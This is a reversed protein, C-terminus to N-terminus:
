KGAVSIKKSKTLNGFGTDTATITASLNVSGISIARYICTATFPVLGVAAKTKINLCGAISKGNALFTFKGAQSSSAVLYYATQYLYRIPTPAFYLDGTLVGRAFTIETSVSSINEYNTGGNKTATVRCKEGVANGIITGGVISCNGSDITFTAADGVSGGSTILTLPTRYFGSISTITLSTQNAKNFMFTATATIANFNADLAKTVTLTCSGSTSATLTGDAFACGTASGNAVSTISLLGDGSGGTASNVTLAQTYPYTKSTASLVPASLTAQDAKAVSYTIADPNTGLQPSSTPTLTV